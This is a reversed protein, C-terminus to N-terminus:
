QIICGMPKITYKDGLKGHLELEEILINARTNQDTTNNPSYTVTFDPGYTHSGVFCTNHHKIVSIAQYSQRESFTTCGAIWAAAVLASIISTLRSM